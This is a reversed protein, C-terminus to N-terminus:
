KVLILIQVKIYPITVKKIQHLGFTKLYFHKKELGLILKQARPLPMLVLVVLFAEM